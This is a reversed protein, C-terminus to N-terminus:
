RACVCKRVDSQLSPLQVFLRGQHLVGEHILGEELRAMGKHLGALVVMPLKRAESIGLM